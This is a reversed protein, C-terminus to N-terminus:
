ALVVVGKVVHKKRAPMNRTEGLPPHPRGTVNWGRDGEDGVYTQEEVDQSAYLLWPYRVLHM